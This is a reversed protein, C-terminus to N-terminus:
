RATLSDIIIIPYYLTKKTKYYNKGNRKQLRAQFSAASKPLIKFFFFLVPIPPYYNHLIKERM